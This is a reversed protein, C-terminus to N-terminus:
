LATKNPLTTGKRRGPFKEAATERQAPRSAFVYGMGYIIARSDANTLSDPLSFDARKPGTEAITM